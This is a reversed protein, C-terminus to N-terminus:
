LGCDGYDGPLLPKYVLELIKEERAATNAPSFSISTLVTNSSSVLFPPGLWIIARTQCSAPVTRTRRSSGWGVLPPM